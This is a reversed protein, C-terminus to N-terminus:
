TQKKFEIMNLLAEATYGGEFVPGTGNFRALDM